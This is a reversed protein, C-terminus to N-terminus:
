FFYEAGINLCFMGPAGLISVVIPIQEERDSVESHYPVSGVERYVMLMAVCHYPKEGPVTVEPGRSMPALNLSSNGPM